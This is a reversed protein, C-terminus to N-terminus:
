NWHRSSFIRDCRDIAAASLGDNPQRKLQGAWRYGAFFIFFFFSLFCIADLCHKPSFVVIDRKIKLASVYMFM